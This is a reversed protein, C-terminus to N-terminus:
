DKSRDLKMDLNALFNNIEREINIRKDKLANNTKEELIKIFHIFYKLKIRSTIYNIILIYYIVNCHIQHM